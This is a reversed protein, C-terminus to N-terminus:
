AALLQQANKVTAQEADIKAVDKAVEGLLNKSLETVKAKAKEGVLLTKFDQVIKDRSDKTAEIYEGAIVELARWKALYNLLTLRFGDNNYFLDVRDDTPFDTMNQKIENQFAPAALAKCATEMNRWFLRAEHLIAVVQKLAAIVQFLASITVEASDVQLSINELRLAAEKVKGLIEREKDQKAILTTFLLNVTERQSEAIKMYDNGLASLNKGADSIAVGLAQMAAKVAELDSNKNQVKTKARAKESKTTDLARQSEGIGTRLAADAERRRNPDPQRTPLTQLWKNSVAIMAELTEEDAELVQLDLEAEAVAAQADALRRQDEASPARTQPQAAPAPAPAPAPASGSGGSGGGLAGLPNARAGYVMAVAQGAGGIAQGLPQMIAGTIALAFARDETKELKGKAQNYELRLDGVLKALREQLTTLNAQEALLTNKQEKLADRAQIENGTILQSDSLAKDAMTCLQDFKAALNGAATALRGAEAACRSLMTMAVDERGKYIMGFATGLKRTVEQSASKIEGLQNICEGAIDGFSIHLTDIQARLGGHKPPTACFALYILDGTIALNHALKDLRVGGLVEAKMEAVIKSNATPAETVDYVAGEHTLKTISATDACM